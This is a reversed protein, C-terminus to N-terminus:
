VVSKRDRLGDALDRISGIYGLADQNEKYINTYGLDTGYIGLNLAKSFNSNYNSSKDDDNLISIDYASGSEKLLVSIELPSPIQQVIDAIVDESIAPAEVELTNVSDLIAQETSSTGSGCASLLVLAVLSFSIKRM